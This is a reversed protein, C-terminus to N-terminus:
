YINVIVNIETIMSCAKALHGISLTALGGKSMEDLATEVIRVRTSKGTSM